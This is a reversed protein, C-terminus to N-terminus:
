LRCVLDLVTEHARLHTYSVATRCRARAGRAYPGAKGRQRSQNPCGDSALVGPRGAQAQKENRTGQQVEDRRHIQNRNHEDGEDPQAAVGEHDAPDGSRQDIRGLREQAPFAVPIEDNASVDNVSNRTWQTGRWSLLRTTRSQACASTCM